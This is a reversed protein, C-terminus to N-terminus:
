DSTIRNAQQYRVHVAATFMPDKVVPTGRDPEALVNKGFSKNGRVRDVLHQFREAVKLLIQFLVGDHMDFCDSRASQTLGGIAIHNHFSYVFGSSNLNRDDATFLFRPENM